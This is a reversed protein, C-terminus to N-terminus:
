RLWVATPLLSHGIARRFIDDERDLLSLIAPIDHGSFLLGVNPFLGQPIYFTSPLAQTHILCCSLYYGHLWVVKLSVGTEGRPPVSFSSFPTHVTM